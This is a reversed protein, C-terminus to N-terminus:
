PTVLARDKLAEVLPDADAAGFGLHLHRRWGEAYEFRGSMKGVERMLEKMTETYSDLGQSTDLWQKQSAHCELMRTKDGLVDGVNVFISPLVPVGLPDRNGHPQAHYVTVPTAVPERFPQV